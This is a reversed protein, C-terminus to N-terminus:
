SERGASWLPAVELVVADVEVALSLVERATLGERRVVPRELPGDVIVEVRALAERLAEAGEPVHLRFVSASSFLEVPSGAVLVRGQGLVAVTHAQEALSWGLSQRSLSPVTVIARRSRTAEGLAALLRWAGYPDDHTARTGDLGELGDLPGEAVLVREGTPDRADASAIALVRREVWTLRALPEARRSSLGYRELVSAALSTAARRPVGGMVASAAVWELASLDRPPPTDRPAPALLDFHEGRAVDRGALSVLGSVVRAHGASAARASSSFDRSYALNPVGLLARALPETDGVLLVREGETVLDLDRLRLVDDVAVHAREAVLVPARPPPASSSSPESM